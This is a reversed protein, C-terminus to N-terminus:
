PKDVSIIVTTAQDEPIMGLALASKAVTELDYGTEYTETLVANKEQLNVVYEEMRLVQQQTNYLQVCGVVMLVLMVVSLFIGTMALPDVCIVRQKVKQPKPLLSRKRKPKPDELRRAASGDTYYQIYQVELKRAM